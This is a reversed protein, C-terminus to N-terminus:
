LVVFDWVGYYSVGDLGIVGVCDFVFIVGVWYLVVDM